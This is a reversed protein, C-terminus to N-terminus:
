SKSSSPILDEFEKASQQWASGAGFGTGFALSAVRATGGRLLVLGFLGGALTGYTVRRLTLDIFRDWKEDIYLEKPLDNKSM